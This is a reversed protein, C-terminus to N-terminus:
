LDTEICLVTLRFDPAAPSFVAVLRRSVGHRECFCVYESPREATSISDALQRNLLPCRNPSRLWHQPVWANGAQRRYLRCIRVGARSCKKTKPIPRTRVVSSSKALEIVSRRCTNTTCEDGRWTCHDSSFNAQTRRAIGRRVKALKVACDLGQKRCFLFPTRLPTLDEDSIRHQDNCHQHFHWALEHVDPERRVHSFASTDASRFIQWIVRDLKLFVSNWRVM